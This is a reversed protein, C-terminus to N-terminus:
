PIKLKSGIKLCFVPISVDGYKISFNFQQENNFRLGSVKFRSNKCNLGEPFQKCMAPSKIGWRIQRETGDIKLTMSCPMPLSEKLVVVGGLDLGRGSQVIEPALDFATHLLFPNGESLVEVTLPHLKGSFAPQTLTKLEKELEQIGKFNRYFTRTGQDGHGLIDKAIKDYFTNSKEVKLYQLLSIVIEKRYIYPSTGYIDEFTVLTSVSELLQLLQWLRNALENCHIEHKVLEEIHLPESFIKNDLGEKQRFHRGWIGTLQAYHLSLLRDVSCDRYLFIHKYGRKTAQRALTSTIEWPVMEVCHKLPLGLQCIEDIANLLAQNDQNDIWNQTIEGFVRAHSGTNFPEHLNWQNDIKQLLKSQSNNITNSRRAQDILGSREILCKALNTGGTRQLTWIIFPSFM